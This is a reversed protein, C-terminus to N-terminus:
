RTYYTFGLLYACGVQQIFSHQLLGGSALPSHQQKRYVVPKRVVAEAAQGTPRGRSSLSLSCAESLLLAAQPIIEKCQTPGGRQTPPLFFILQAATCPGCLPNRKPCLMKLLTSIKLSLCPHKQPVKLKMPLLSQGM